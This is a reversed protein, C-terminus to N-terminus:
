NRSGYDNEKETKIKEEERRFNEAEAAIRKEREAVGACLLLKKRDTGIESTVDEIRKKVALAEDTNGGKVEIEKLKKRLATREDALAAVRRRLKDRYAQLQEVTEIKEYMMLNAQNQYTNINRTEYRMYPTVRPRHVPCYATFHLAYYFYLFLSAIGSTARAKVRYGYYNQERVDYDSRRYANGDAIRAYIKDLSYNGADDLSDFRYNRGGPPTLKPHALKEGNKAYVTIIYGLKRMEDYFDKVTRSNNVASDIDRRITQRVTPRGSLEARYEGPSRTPRKPNKVVSLGHELCLRDSVEAMRRRDDLTNHFKIGDTDSVSNIVFHNHYHGTNCHTAVVVQFRDGWLEKALAVGIEHAEAATVEGAAFSQEGHYCVRGGTKDRGSIESWYKKTEWMEKAATEASTLNLTTVYERRETKEDNAAYGIVGELKRLKGGDAGDGTKKPNIGYAIVNKLNSLDGNVPWVKTTAM